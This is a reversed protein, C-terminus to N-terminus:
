ISKQSGNLSSKSRDILLKHNTHKVSFNSNKEKINPLTLLGQKTIEISKPSELQNLESTNVFSQYYEPIFKDVSLHLSGKSRNTDLYRSM